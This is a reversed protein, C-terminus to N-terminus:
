DHSEPIELKGNMYRVKGHNTILHRKIEIPLHSFEAQTLNGHVEDMGYLEGNVAWPREGFLGGDESAQGYDPLANLFTSLMKTYAGPNSALYSKITSALEEETHSDLLKVLKDKDKSSRLAVKNGDARVVSAPYLAYLRNAADSKEKIEQKRIEKNKYKDKDADSKQGIKTEDKDKDTDSSGQYLDFNNITILSTTTDSKHGIYGADEYSKLARAVKDKGWGWKTALFRVSAMVQGRELNVCGGQHVVKKPEYAAMQILDLLAERRTYPEFAFADSDFLRRPVKFFDM